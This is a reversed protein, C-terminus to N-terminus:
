QSDKPNLALLFSGSQPPPPLPNSKRLAREATNDCYRDGSSQALEIRTLNGGADIDVDFQPSGQCVAAGSWNARVVVQVRAVWPSYRPDFAGPSGETAAPADAPPAPTPTAAEQAEVRETMKQLLEEASPPPTKREAPAPKPKAPLPQVEKPIVIEKVAPKPPPAPEPPKPQAKPAPEPKPPAPRAAAAPKPAAPVLQVMIPSASILRDSRPPHVVLGIFVLLHGALSFALLRRFARSQLLSEAPVYFSSM